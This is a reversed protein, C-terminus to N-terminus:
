VLAAELKLLKKKISLGGSYGGLTGDSATVRHCPIILCLPNKGNATGVARSAFPKKIAVSIDKYSITEGYPIKLLAKWVTKQFGTGKIDLPIDFRERAGDLYETIQKKGLLLYKYAPSNSKKFSEFEQKKWFVGQLGLNSSVLYLSGINTKIEMQMLSM